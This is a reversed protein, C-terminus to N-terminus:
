ALVVEVGGDASRVRVSAEETSEWTGRVTVVHDPVSLRADGGVAPDPHDLVLRDGDVRVTYRDGAITRPLDVGVAV